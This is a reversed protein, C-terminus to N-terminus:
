RKRFFYCISSYESSSKAKLNSKLGVYAAKLLNSHGTKYKESLLSVYFSDFILGKSDIQRFKDKFLYKFSGQSFHWLHRPVDFAAWFEKYYEADYSKYNPVAIVLLGDKKLLQELELIQTKLDPVHELVHWMSIVDFKDSKFEKLSSKLIVGKEKAKKRATEEPEVGEVEWGNAQAVKLFDGTGAGIDLLSGKEPNKKNIWKLKKLLMREKVLHYLKDTFSSKSDTHSIYSESRYYEPLKELDPKPSTVLMEKEVDLLLDFKEGSVTFDRCTLFHTKQTNIVSEKM